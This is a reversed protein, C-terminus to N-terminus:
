NGKGQARAHYEYDQIFEEQEDTEISGPRMRRVSFIAESAKRGEFRILYCALITGTRGMGARCHVAVPKGAKINAAIFDLCDEVQAFSPISFDPIPSYFYEFGFEKAHGQFDSDSDLSIIARIGETMLAAFAEQVNPSWASTACGALKGEILYSFNIPLGSAESHLSM